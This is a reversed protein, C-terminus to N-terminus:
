VLPIWLVAKKNTRSSPTGAQSQAARSHPTVKLCGNVLARSPWSLGLSEKDAGEGCGRVPTGAKLLRGSVCLESDSSASDSFCM